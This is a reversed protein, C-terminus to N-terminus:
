GSSWRRTYTDGRTGSPSREAVKETEDDLDMLTNPGADDPRVTVVMVRDRWLLLRLAEAMDSDPVDLHIRAGGEGALGIANRGPVLTARFTASDDGM